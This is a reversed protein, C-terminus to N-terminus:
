LHMFYTTLSPFATISASLSDSPILTALPGNLDASLQHLLVPHSTALLWCWVPRVVQWSSPHWSPHLWGRARSGSLTM